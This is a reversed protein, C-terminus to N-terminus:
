VPKNVFVDFRSKFEAETGSLRGAVRESFEFGGILEPKPTTVSLRSCYEHLTLPIAPAVIPEPAALPTETNAM